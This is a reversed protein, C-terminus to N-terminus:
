YTNWGGNKWVCGNFDDAVISPISLDKLKSNLNARYHHFCCLHITNPFDTALAKHFEVEGDTGFALINPRLSVLSSPFITLPSNRKNTYWCQGLCLYATAKQAISM